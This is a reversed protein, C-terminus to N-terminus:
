ARSGVVEDARALVGPPIDLGIDQAAALNLRLRHAHVHRLPIGAPDAGNLVLEVLGALEPVTQLLSTGYALLGDHQWGGPFMAPLRYEAARVAISQFDSILVPVELVQLAEAGGAKMERFAADRDPAPGQIRVWQLDLGLAAAAMENSRELTNWGGSRPVDVDSLVAVRKLGPVVEQLIALQKGALDPDHNTVGAMNCGSREHSAAFGMEVPDLVIAYVIPIRDTARQAAQAGVGGIAVILDVNSAVLEQAFGTTRQLVGEAFRPELVIAQGDIYGRDALARVFANFLADRGRHVILGIRPLSAAM